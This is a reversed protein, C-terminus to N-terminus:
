SSCSSPYLGMSPWSRRAVSTPRKIEALASWIRWTLRLFVRVFRVRHPTRRPMLMVEFTEFLVGLVLLLAVISAGIRM